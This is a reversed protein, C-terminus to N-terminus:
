SPLAGLQRLPRQRQATLLRDRTRHPDEERQNCRQADDDERLAVRAPVDDLARDDARGEAQNEQDVDEHKGPRVSVIPSGEAAYAARDTGRGAM